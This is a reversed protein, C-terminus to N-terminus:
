RVYIDDRDMPKGGLDYGKEIRSLARVKIKERDSEGDVSRILTNVIWATLSMEEDVARHRFKRLLEEDMRLTVNKSM